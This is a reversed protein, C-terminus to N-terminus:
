KGEQIVVSNKKPHPIKTGRGPISGAGGVNSPATKVMPNGPFDRWDSIQFLSRLHGGAVQQPTLRGALFSVAGSISRIPQSM